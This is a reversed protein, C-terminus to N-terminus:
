TRRGSGGGDLFWRAGFRSIIIAMARGARARKIWRAGGGLIVVISTM